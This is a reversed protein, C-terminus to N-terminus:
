YDPNFPSPRQKFPASMGQNRLTNGYQPDPYDILWPDKFQITGGNVPSLELSNRITITPETPMFKSIINTTSNNIFFKHTRIISSDINNLSWRLFKEQNFINNSSLLDKNSNRKWLFASPVTYDWFRNVVNDWLGVLGKNEGNSLKQEVTVIQYDSIGYYIARRFTQMNFHAFQKQGQTFRIKCADSSYDMFNDIPDDGPKDPCSDQILCFVNGPTYQYPTDDVLDGDGECGGEFTHFLGLYHGIEHVAVDGDSYYPETGGPLSTHKVVVGHMKSDEPYDSPFHAYGIYGDGIQCIYFNLVQLPNIALANKMEIEEPSGPIHYFWSPNDVRNISHLTFNFGLFSLSQNLINLQQIIRQEAVDGYGNDHIIHFAIPISIVSEISVNM